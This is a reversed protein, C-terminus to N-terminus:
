LVNQVQRHWSGRTRAPNAQSQSEKIAARVGLCVGWLIWIANWYHVTLGIVCFCIISATFGTGLSNIYPDAAGGKIRPASRYFTGINAMLLLVIMPIGFRVACVLWVNDLTTKGLFEDDGIVDAFGWGLIPKFAIMDYYYDFVYLRFYGTGPDLTLHSVIWSTPKPVFIYIAIVALAVIAQYAKWRWAYRKLSEAYFFSAVVILFALLPGSSLALICGLFSFGTWLLKRLRTTEAYLFLSGAVCCFTGFHEADEFTSQARVIGGRYQRWAGPIFLETIVNTGSVTDLLSLSIVVVTLIKFVHMFEQLESRRFFYARAVLYGGGLEIVEVIASANLGSQPLQSGIMWACTLLMFLESSIFHRGRQFLKGFAPLLLLLISARGPTIKFGEGALHVQLSAPLLLVGTLLVWAPLPSPRRFGGADSRLRVAAPSSRSQLIPQSM